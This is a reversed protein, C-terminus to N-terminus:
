QLALGLVYDYVHEDMEILEVRISDGLDTNVGFFQANYYQGNIFEDDGVFYFDSQEENVWIKLRYHNKETANDVSHYSVLYFEFEADTIGFNELHYTLSDIKPKTRSSADSM